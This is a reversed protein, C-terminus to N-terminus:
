VVQIVCSLSRRGCLRPPARNLPTDVIWVATEKAVAYLRDGFEPDVVITVANPIDVMKSGVM